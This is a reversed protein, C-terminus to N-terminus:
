EARIERIARAPCARLGSTVPQHDEENNAYIRNM